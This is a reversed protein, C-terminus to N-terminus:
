LRTGGRQCLAEIDCLMCKDSDSYCRYIDPHGCDMDSPYLQVSNSPVLEEDNQTDIFDKSTFAYKASNVFKRFVLPNDTALRVLFNIFDSRKSFFDPLRSSLNSRLPVLLAFKVDYEDEFNEINFENSKVADILYQTVICQTTISIKPYNKRLKKINNFYLDQDEKNKYRYKTDFSTHLQIQSEIGFEQFMQLITELYTTDYILNTILVLHTQECISLVKNCILEFLNYLEEQLRKDTIYFLEGGIVSIGGDYKSWDQLEISEYARRVSIIMNDINTYADTKDGRICFKCDNNCNTWLLYQLMKM